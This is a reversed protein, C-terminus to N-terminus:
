TFPQDWSDIFAIARISGSSRKLATAFVMRGFNGCGMMQLTVRFPQLYGLAVLQAYEPRMSGRVSPSALKALLGKAMRWGLYLGAVASASLRVQRRVPRIPRSRM